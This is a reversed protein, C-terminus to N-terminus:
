AFLCPLQSRLGLELGSSRRHLGVLTYLQNIGLLNSSALGVRSSTSTSLVVLLVLVVVTGRTIM